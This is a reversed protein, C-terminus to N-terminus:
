RPVPGGAPELPFVWPEGRAMGAQRIRAQGEASALYAAVRRPANLALGCPAHPAEPQEVVVYPRRMAPDGKFLVALGPAAMKGYAMPIHGAVVYAQRAAAHALIQQPHPSEDPERWGPPPPQDAQRWLKQVIAHSGPDDFAIFRARTRAIRQLAEAGNPAGRVGAPDAEPGIVVHENAGWATIRGAQGLALLAIVEDGGHILMLDAQRATFVPVIVDKNGTAVLELRTQTAAEVVPALRQWFGIMTLGGIVVVRVPVPRDEARSPQITWALGLALGALLPARRRM